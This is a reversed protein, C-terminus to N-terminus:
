PKASLPKRNILITGGGNLRKWGWEALSGIPWGMTWTFYEGVDLVTYWAKGYKQRYGLGRIQEVVWVFDEDRAFNKRLCYEHPNDPMRKAFIWTQQELLARVRDLIASQEASPLADFAVRLPHPPRPPKSTKPTKPTRARKTKTM